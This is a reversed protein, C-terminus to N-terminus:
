IAGKAELATIMANTPKPDIEKLNCGVITGKVWSNLLECVCM